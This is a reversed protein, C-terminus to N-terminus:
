PKAKGGAIPEATESGSLINDAFGAFWWGVKSSNPMQGYIHLEGNRTIRIRQAGSYQYEAYTLLRARDIKGIM